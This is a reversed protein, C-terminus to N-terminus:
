YPRHYTIVCWIYSRILCNAFICLVATRYRLVDLGVFSRIAVLTVDGFFPIPIPVANIILTLLPARKLLGKQLWEKYRRIFRMVGNRSFKKILFAKIRHDFLWDIIKHGWFFAINGIIGLLVLYVWSEIFPDQTRWLEHGFTGVILLIKKSVEGIIPVYQATIAIGSILFLVVIIRRLAYIVAFAKRAISM